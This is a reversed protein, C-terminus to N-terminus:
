NPYNGHLSGQLRNQFKELDTKFPESKYNINTIDILKASEEDQKVLNQDFLVLNYGTDSMASKYIVGSAGKKWFVEAIIQTPIYYIDTDDPSIPESFEQDIQEWLSEYLQQLDLSDQFALWLLPPVDGREGTLDVIKIDSLLKFKVVSVLAGKWPRVEAIATPEDNALYLVGIGNANARGPRRKEFPPIQMEQGKYPTISMLRNEKPIRKNRDPGIRARFFQKGKELTKHRKISMEGIAEVFQQFDTQYRKKTIIHEKFQFWTLPAMIMSGFKKGIEDQSM